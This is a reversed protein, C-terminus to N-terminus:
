LNELLLNEDGNGMIGGCCLIRNCIFSCLQSLYSEHQIVSVPAICVSYTQGGKNKRFYFFVWNTM